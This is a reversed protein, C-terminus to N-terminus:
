KMCLHTARRCSGAIGNCQGSRRGRRRCTDGTPGIAHNAREIIIVQDGRRLPEPDVVRGARIAVTQAGHGGSHHPQSFCWCLTRRRARM